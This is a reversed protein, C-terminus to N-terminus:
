KLAKNEPALDVLVLVSRQELNITDVCAFIRLEVEAFSNSVNVTGFCLLVSGVEATNPPTHGGLMSITASNTRLESGIQRGM